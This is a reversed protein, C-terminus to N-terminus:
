RLTVYDGLELMAFMQRLEANLGAVAVDGGVARFEGVAVILVGVGVSSIFDVGTCDLEVSRVGQALLETLAQQLRPSGDVDLHGGLVLAIGGDPRTVRKRIVFESTPAAEPRTEPRPKM